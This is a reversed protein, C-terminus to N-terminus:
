LSWTVLWGHIKPRSLVKLRVFWWGRIRTCKWTLQGSAVTARLRALLAEYEVENNSARFGLRFSHEVKVGKPSILVISAGTGAISSACDM